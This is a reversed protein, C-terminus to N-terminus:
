FWGWVEGLIVGDFNAHCGSEIAGNQGWIKKFGCGWKRGMKMIFTSLNEDM